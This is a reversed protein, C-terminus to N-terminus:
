HPCSVCSLKSYIASFLSLNLVKASMLDKKTEMKGTAGLMKRAGGGGQKLQLFLTLFFHRTYLSLSQCYYQPFGRSRPCALNHVMSKLVNHNNKIERMIRSNEGDAEEDKKARLLSNTLMSHTMFLGVFDFSEPFQHHFITCIDHVNRKSSSPSHSCAALHNPLDPM